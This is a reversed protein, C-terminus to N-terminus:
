AHGAFRAVWALKEDRSLLGPNGFLSNNIVLFDIDTHIFSEWAESASRVIPEGSVNFSTNILMPVGTLQNFATLLEFMDPHTDQSVTQLRASFDVHVVSQVASRPWDLQEKMGLGEPAAALRHRALLHSVFQMYRSPQANEFWEGVADELILPAFPRFGERFKVALNLRSQVGPGRADALISRAGLARAGLEMRGKCWAIIKGESLLKACTAYLDGPMEIAHQRAQAPPEGPEPGLYFGNTTLPKKILGAARQHLLAAGLGTGMDSSAPSVWVEKFIGSDRLKGMAVCNQACGGSILLQSQGTQQRIHEAMRLLTKEFLAQTTAALDAHFQTIPESPDRAQWGTLSNIWAFLAPLKGTGFQIERKPRIGGFVDDEACIKELTSMYKARGYPALGMFKYESGFSHFGLFFTMLCYIVGIGSGFQEGMVQINESDIHGFMASSEEGHGDLCLFAAADVDASYYASATHALHHWAFHQQALPFLEGAAQAFPIYPRRGFFKGAYYFRSLSAALKNGPATFREFMRAQHHKEAFCLATVDAYKIGAMRLVDDIAMRPFNADHKKRSYREEQAASLLVGDRMLAVNADHELGGGIGLTIV